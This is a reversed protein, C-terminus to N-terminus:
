GAKWFDESLIGFLHSNVLFQLYSSTVFGLKKRTLGTIVAECCEVFVFYRQMNKLLIAHCYLWIVQLVKANYCITRKKELPKQM